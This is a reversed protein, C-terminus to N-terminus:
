SKSELRMTAWAVACTVGSFILVILATGLTVSLKSGGGAKVVRSFLLVAPGISLVGSMLSIMRSGDSLDYRGGCSQCKYSRGRSNSPM